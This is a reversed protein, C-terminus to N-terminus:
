KSNDFHKIIKHFNKELSNLLQQNDYQVINKRALVVFDINKQKINSNIRFTERVLRKIYNRSVALKLSKKSIALGLRSHSIKNKRGLVLFYKDSSKYASDFVYQFEVAKLLRDNRKFKQQM